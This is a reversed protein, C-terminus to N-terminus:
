RGGQDSLLSILHFAPARLVWEDGDKAILGKRQLRFLTKSIHKESLGTLERIEFFHLRRHKWLVFFIRLQGKGICADALRKFEESFTKLRDVLHPDSWEECERLWERRSLRPVCRWMVGARVSRFAFSLLAFMIVLTPTM